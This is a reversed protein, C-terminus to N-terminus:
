KVVQIEYNLGLIKKLPIKIYDDGIDLPILMGSPPLEKVFLTKVKKDSKADILHTILKDYAKAYFNTYNYQRILVWSLTVIM